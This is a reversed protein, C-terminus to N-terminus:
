RVYRPKRGYDARLGSARGRQQPSITVAAFEARYGLKERALALSCVCDDHMGEPASYSVGLRKYVYEFAKLEAVIV